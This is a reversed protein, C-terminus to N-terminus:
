AVHLGTRAADAVVSPQELLRAFEDPTLCFADVHRHPRVEDDFDALRDLFHQGEFRESVVVMDIDSWEDPQGTIRSGYIIVTQPRFRERIRELCEDIFRRVEPDLPRGDHRHRARDFQGQSM